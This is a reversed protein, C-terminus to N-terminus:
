DHYYRVVPEGSATQVYGLIATCRVRYRRGGWTFHVIHAKPKAWRWADEAAACLANLDAQTWAKGGRRGVIPPTTNQTMDVGKKRTLPTEEYKKQSL